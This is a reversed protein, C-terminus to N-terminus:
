IPPLGELGHAGFRYDMPKVWRYSYCLYLMIRKTQSVNETVAHLLPNVFFVVDGPVMPIATAMVTPDFRDDPMWTTQHSGPIVLLQGGQPDTQESLCIGARVYVIPVKTDSLPLLAAQGDRHWQKTLRGTRARPYDIILNSAHLQFHDGLVYRVASLIARNYVLGLALKSKTIYNRIDSISTVPSVEDTLGTVDILERYVSYGDLVIQHM